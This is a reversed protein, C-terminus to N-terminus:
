RGQEENALVVQTAIGVQFWIWCCSRLGLLGTTNKSMVTPWVTLLRNKKEGLEEITTTKMKMTMMTKM